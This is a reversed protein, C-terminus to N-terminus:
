RGLLSKQIIYFSCTIKKAVLMFRKLFLEDDKDSDKKVARM